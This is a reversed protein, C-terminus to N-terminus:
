KSLKKFGHMEPIKGTLSFYVIAGVFLSFAILNSFIGGPTQAERFELFFVM